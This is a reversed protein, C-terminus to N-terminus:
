EWQQRAGIDSVITSTCWNTVFSPMGFGAM